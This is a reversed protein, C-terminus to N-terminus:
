WGSPGRVGVWLLMVGGLRCAAFALEQLEVGVLEHGQQALLEAAAKAPVDKGLADLKVLLRDLVDLVKVQLQRLVADLGRLLEGSIREVLDREFVGEIWDALVELVDGVV